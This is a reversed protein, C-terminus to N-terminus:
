RGPRAKKLASKGAAKVDKAARKEAADQAEKALRLQRLRATKELRLKTANDLEQKIGRERKQIEAYREEAKSRSAMIKAAKTFRLLKWRPHEKVIRNIHPDIADVCFSTGSRKPCNFGYSCFDYAAIAPPTLTIGIVM